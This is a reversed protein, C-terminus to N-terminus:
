STLKVDTSNQVRMAGFSTGARCVV